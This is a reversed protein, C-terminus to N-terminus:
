LAGITPKAVSSLLTPGFGRHAANESRRPQRVVQGVPVQSVTEEVADSEELIAEPRVGLKRLRRAAM